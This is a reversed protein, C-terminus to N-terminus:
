VEAKLNMVHDKSRQFCDAPLSTGEAPPLSLIRAKVSSDLQHGSAERPLSASGQGEAGGGATGM